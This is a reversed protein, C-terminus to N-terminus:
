RQSPGPSTRLPRSPSGNAAAPPALGSRPCPSKLTRPEISRPIEWRECRAGLDYARAPDKARKQLDAPAEFIRLKGELSAGKEAGSMANFSSRVSNPQMRNLLACRFQRSITDILGSYWRRCAAVSVCSACVVRSGSVALARSPIAASCM